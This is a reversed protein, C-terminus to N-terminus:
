FARERRAGNRGIMSGGGWMVLTAVAGAPKMLPGHSESRRRGTCSFAMQSRAEDCVVARPRERGADRDWRPDQPAMSGMPTASGGLACVDSQVGREVVSVIM